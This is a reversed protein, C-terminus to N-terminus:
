RDDSWGKPTPVMFIESGAKWEIDACKDLTANSEKASRLMGGTGGQKWMRVNVADSLKYYGDGDGSLVGEFIFGKDLIVINRQGDPTQAVSDARVYQVDNISITEPESM